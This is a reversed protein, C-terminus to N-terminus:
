HFIRDSFKLRLPWICAYHLVTCIRRPNHEPIPKISFIIIDRKYFIKLEFNEDVFIIRVYHWFYEFYRM